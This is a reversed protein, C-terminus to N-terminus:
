NSIHSDIKQEIRDLRKIIENFEKTTAPDDEEIAEVRQNVLAISKEIPALQTVIWLNLTAILIAALKFANERIFGQITQEKKEDNM